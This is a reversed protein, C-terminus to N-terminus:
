APLTNPLCTRMIEANKQDATIEPAETIGRSPVFGTRLALLIDWEVFDM